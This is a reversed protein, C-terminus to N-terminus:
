VKTIGFHISLKDAGSILLVDDHAQKLHQLYSRKREKWDTKKGHDDPIGDTCGEVLYLVREGFQEKILSIYKRGGDEIVDHLLAAIAQDEDAGYELAISAVALPHSIYPITTGKRFDGDHAEIALSLARSFRTTIM